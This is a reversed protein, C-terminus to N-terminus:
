GNECQPVPKASPGPLRLRTPRKIEGASGARRPPAPSCSSSAATLSLRRSGTACKMPSPLISAPFLPHDPLCRAESLPPPMDGRPACIILEHQNRSWHGLTIHPKVWVASARLTFGWETVVELAEPWMSPQAEKKGDSDLRQFAEFPM